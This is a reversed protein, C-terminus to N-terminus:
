SAPQKAAAAGDAKAAAPKAAAGKAPAGKPAKAPASKPATERKARPKKAPPPPPLSALDRFCAAPAVLAGAHVELRRLAGFVQAPFSHSIDM